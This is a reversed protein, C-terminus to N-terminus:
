VTKEVPRDLKFDSVKKVSVNDCTEAKESVMCLMEVRSYAYTYIYGDGQKWGIRYKMSVERVDM